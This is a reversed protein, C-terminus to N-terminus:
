ERGKSNGDEESRDADVVVVDLERRCQQIDPDSGCFAILEGLHRLPSIV